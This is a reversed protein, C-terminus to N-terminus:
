KKESIEGGDARGSRSGDRGCSYEVDVTGNLWDRMEQKAREKPDLRAAAAQLGEKSYAKTKAEKECVKFAEMRREIERRAELLDSKDRVDSSSQWNKIQDRLKQLKKLETKLNSEHKEKQNVNESTSLQVRAHTFM